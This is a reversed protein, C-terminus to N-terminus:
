IRSMNCLSTLDKEEEKNEKEIKEEKEKLMSEIFERVATLTKTDYDTFLNLYTVLKCKDKNEESIMNMFMDRYDELDEGNNALALLQSVIIHNTKGKQPNSITYEEYEKKCQNFIKVANDYDEQTWEILKTITPLDRCKYKELRERDIEDVVYVHEALDMQNKYDEVISAKDEENLTPNMYNLLEELYKQITHIKHEGFYNMIFYYSESYFKVSGYKGWIPQQNIEWYYKDNDRGDAIDDDTPFWQYDCVTGDDVYFGVQGRMVRAMYHVYDEIDEKGDVINFSFHVAKMAPVFYKSMEERTDETIDDCIFTHDIRDIINDRILTEIFPIDSYSMCFYWFDKEDPYDNFASMGLKFTSNNCYPALAKVFIPLPINRYWKEEENYVIILDYYLADRYVYAIKTDKNEGLIKIEEKENDYSFAINNIVIYNIM